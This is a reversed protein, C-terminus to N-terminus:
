KEQYSEEVKQNYYGEKGGTAVFLCYNLKALEDDYVLRGLTDEKIFDEIRSIEKKLNEAIANLYEQKLSM